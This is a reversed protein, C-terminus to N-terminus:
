KVWLQALLVGWQPHVQHNGVRKSAFDVNQRNYTPVIPAQALIALEAKQWSSTAAPPNQAQVAAAELLMRDVAPDCFESPDANKRPDRSFAKCTFQPVLFGSVSPFDAVWGNYGVQARTRSDLIRNFYAGIDPVPRIAKLHARYGLANLVSVMFRGQGSLPAPVWVMVTGGATGSNRVLRRGRDLGAAGGAGYPCARRYSPYNPPLIQCTPAFGRGLLQAFAERDFAYNVAKRARVDDFPPVQTNLFFYNTASAATMHLQSPYRTALAALQEKSIPPLLDLAEDAAGHLVARVQAEPDVTETFDWAIVDPYGDPQADASWEHFSPNRVLKASRKGYAAVMYPGTAPVAHKGVDRAPTRRPVAVAFTLALKTLFDADPARLHFTVTRAVADTAIGQSLNCRKGPSCRETGVIGTYYLRGPSVPKAMEFVRELETRIDQPQVLRGNAYRVDPRLRFTYTRGDDTPLPLSVALDPVLQVGEIGGVRRFGVLGDNTVSLIAWGGPSYALAPDIFDPPFNQSVRLTGGRHERGSSRVAVYVGSPSVALGRPLNALSVTKVIRDTSPDIRSLTGDGSNAV